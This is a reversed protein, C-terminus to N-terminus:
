AMVLLREFRCYACRKRTCVYIFLWITHCAYDSGTDTAPELELLGLLIQTWQINTCDPEFFYKVTAQIFVFAGFPDVHVTCESKM